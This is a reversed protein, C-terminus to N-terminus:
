RAPGTVRDMADRGFGLRTIWTLCTRRLDHPTAREIGLEAVLGRFKCNTAVSTRGYHSDGRWVIRTKPWHRRLRKTVHKVVIRVESGKAEAADNRNRPPGPARCATRLTHDAPGTQLLAGRCTRPSVQVPRM